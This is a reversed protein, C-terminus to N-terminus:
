PKGMIEESPPLMEVEAQKPNHNPPRKGTSPSRRKHVPSLRYHVKGGMQIMATLPVHPNKGKKLCIILPFGWSSILFFFFLPNIEHTSSIGLYAM